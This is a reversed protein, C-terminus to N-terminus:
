KMEDILGEKALMTKLLAADTDADFVTDKFLRNQFEMCAENISDITLEIERKTNIIDDGPSIVNDFDSYTKILKVTTPLYYRMLKDLKKLEKPEKEVRDFIAALVTELKDLKSSMPELKIGLHMEKISLVYQRGEPIIGGDPINKKDEILKQNKKQEELELYEKYIDNSLMFCQGSADLHGQPFNGREILKRLNKEVLEKNENALMAIDEVNMYLKDNMIRYYKEAEDILKLRFLAPVALVAGVSFFPILACMTAFWAGISGPFVTLTVVFIPIAFLIMIPIGFFVRILSDSRNTKLYVKPKEKIRNPVIIKNPVVIKTKNYQIPNGVRKLIDIAKNSFEKAQNAAKNEDFINVVNDRINNWEKNDQM